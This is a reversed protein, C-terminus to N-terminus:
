DKTLASEPALGRGGSAVPKMATAAYQKAQAKETATVHADRLRNFLPNVRDNLWRFAPSKEKLENKMFRICGACDPNAVPYRRADIDHWWALLRMGALLPERFLIFWVSRGYALRVLMLTCSGCEARYVRRDSQDPM